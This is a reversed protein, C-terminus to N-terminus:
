GLGFVSCGLVLMKEKKEKLDGFYLVVFLAPERVSVPVQLISVFKSIGGSSYM